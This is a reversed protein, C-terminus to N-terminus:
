SVRTAPLLTPRGRLCVRREDPVISAVDAVALLLLRRGLLGARVELV